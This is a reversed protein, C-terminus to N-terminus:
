YYYYHYLSLLVKDLLQKSIFNITQEISFIWCSMEYKSEAAFLFSRNPTGIEFCTPGHDSKVKVHSSELSIRGVPFADLKNVYYELANNTLRM